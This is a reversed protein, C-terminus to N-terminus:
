IESTRTQIFFNGKLMFVSHSHVKQHQDSSSRDVKYESLVIAKLM